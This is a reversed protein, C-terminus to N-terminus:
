ERLVRGPATGMKYFGANRAWRMTELRRRSRGVAMM